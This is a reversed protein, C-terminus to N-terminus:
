GAGSTTTSKFTKASKATEVQAISQTGKHTIESAAAAKIKAKAINKAASSRFPTVPAFIEFNSDRQCQFLNGLTDLFFDLHSTQSGALIAVSGTCGRTM